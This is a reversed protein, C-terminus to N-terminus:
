LLFLFFFFQISMCIGIKSCVHVFPHLPDVNCLCTFMIYFKATEYLSSIFIKFFIAVTVTKDVRLKRCALPFAKNSCFDRKCRKVSTNQWICKGM